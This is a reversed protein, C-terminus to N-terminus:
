AHAQRASKGRKKDKDKAQKAYFAEMKARREPTWARKSPKAVAPAAVTDLPPMSAAHGNAAPQQEAASHEGDLRERLEPWEEVIENIMRQLKRIESLAASKALELIRARSLAM